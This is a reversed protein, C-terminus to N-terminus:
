DRQYVTFIQRIVGHRTKGDPDRSTSVVESTTMLVCWGETNLPERTVSQSMRDAIDLIEDMGDMQSFIDATHYVTEGHQLKTGGSETSWDGIVVYPFAVAEPLGDYVAIDTLDSDLREYLAIQLDKISSRRLIM